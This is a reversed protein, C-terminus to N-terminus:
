IVIVYRFATAFNKERSDRRLGCWYCYRLKKQSSLRCYKPALLKKLPMIFLKICKNKILM